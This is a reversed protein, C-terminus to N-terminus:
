RGVEAAAEIPLVSIHQTTERRLAIEAGDVRYVVPDGAPARRVALVQSGAVLGLDMLPEAAAPPLALAAIVAAQGPALDALRCPPSPPTKKFNFIM